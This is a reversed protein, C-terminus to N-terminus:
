AIALGVQQLPDHKSNMSMDVWLPFDPLEKLPHKNFVWAKLLSFGDQVLVIDRLYGTKGKRIHLSTSDDDFGFDAKRLALFEKPRAVSEYLNEYLTKDRATLCVARMRQMEETTLIDDPGVTPQYGETRLWSVFKSDEPHM